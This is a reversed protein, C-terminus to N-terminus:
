TNLYTTPKDPRQKLPVLLQWCPRLGCLITVDVTGILVCEPEILRKRLDALYDLEDIEDWISVAM